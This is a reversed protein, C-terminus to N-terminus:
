FWGLGWWTAGQSITSRSAMIAYECERVMERGPAIIGMRIVLVEVHSNFSWPDDMHQHVVGHDRVESNLPFCLGQGIRSPLNMYMGDLARVERCM